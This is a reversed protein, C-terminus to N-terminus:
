GRKTVVITQRAETNVGPPLEGTDDLHKQIATDLLRKQLMHPCKNQIVWDWVLAWDAAGFRRKVRITAVGEGPMEFSSMGLEKMEQMLYQEVADRAARLKSDKQEYEGRIDDRKDEIKNYTKLADNISKIEM